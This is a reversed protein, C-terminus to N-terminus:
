VELGVVEVKMERLKGPFCDIKWFVSNSGLVSTQLSAAVRATVVM